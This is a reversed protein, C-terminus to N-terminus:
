FEVFRNITAKAQLEQLWAQFKETLKQQRMQEKVQIRLAEQDEDAPLVDANDKLYTDVEEDTVVADKEFLKEIMKQIQLQEDLESRNIGQLGLAEDLTRGQEKLADEIKKVEAAVEEDTVTIGKKQMEQLILKKSILDNLTAEGIQKEMQTNLTWRPIIEGNVTAAIFMGRLLYVLVAVVVVALIFILMKKSPRKFTKVSSEKVEMAATSTTKKTTKKATTKKTTPM